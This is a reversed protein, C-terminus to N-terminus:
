LRRLTFNNTQLAPILEIETELESGFRNDSHQSHLTVEYEINSGESSYTSYTKTQKVSKLLADDQNGWNVSEIPQPELESIQQDGAVKRLANAYMKETPYTRVNVVSWKLQSIISYELSNKAHPVFAILAMKGATKNKLKALYVDQKSNLAEVHVTGTKVMQVHGFLANFKEM